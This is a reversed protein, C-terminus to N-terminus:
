KPENPSRGLIFVNFATELIGLADMIYTETIKTKWTASELVIGIEKKSKAQWSIRNIPAGTVSFRAGNMTIGVDGKKTEFYLSRIMGSEPFEDLKAEFLATLKAEVTAGMFPQLKKRAQSISIQTNPNAEKNVVSSHAVDIHIHNGSRGGLAIRLYTNGISTKFVSFTDKEKKLLKVLERDTPKIQACATIAVCHSNKFDPLTIPM